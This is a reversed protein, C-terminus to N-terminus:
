FCECNECIIAYNRRRLNFSDDYYINKYNYLIQLPSLDFYENRRRIELEHKSM